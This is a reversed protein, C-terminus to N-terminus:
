DLKGGLFEERREEFEEQATGYDDIRGIDLWYCDSTFCFVKGGASQTRLILDPMDLYKGAEVQRLAEGSLVNVGMSVDMDYVPKESFNRFHGREDAEVVGFDIKVSRRYTAITVDAEERAHCDLLDHFNLTTLLDGNLVVVTESLNGILSLAGATGMPADEHSYRISLGYKKGDGAVAMILEALYGTSIVVEKFGFAALRTLVIDLISMDGIPVLPKPLVTTFPRLRTGKGGAMVVATVSQPSLRSM